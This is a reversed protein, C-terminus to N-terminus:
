KGHNVIVFMRMNGLIDFITEDTAGTWVDGASCTYVSARSVCVVNNSCNTGCCELFLLTRPHTKTNRVQEQVQGPAALLKLRSVAEARQEAQGQPSEMELGLAQGQSNTLVLSRRYRRGMPPTRLQFSSPLLQPAQQQHHHHHHQIPEQWSQHKLCSCQFFSKWTKISSLNIFVKSHLFWKNNGLEASSSILCATCPYISGISGTDNVWKGAAQGWGPLLNRPQLAWWVPTVLTTTPRM